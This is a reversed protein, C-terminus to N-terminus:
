SSGLRGLEDCRDHFQRTLAPTVEDSKVARIYDVVSDVHLKLLARGKAPNAGTADGAYHDPHDAYFSVPTKGGPLHKLRGLPPATRGGLADMKVLEPHTAMTVSTEWECAHGGYETDLIAKKQKQRAENLNWDTLYLAYSKRQALMIQRLYHLLHTNGGHGNYVIIKAFGNRAIEDCVNMLLRVTLIPDIAITGPYCRAEQIQGYWHPPFVVAPEAEAALCCIKHANLGDTGLPLHEFHKELSGVPLICLGMEHVAKQLEPATLQEWQM